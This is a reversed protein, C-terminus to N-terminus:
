LEGLIKMIRKGSVSWNLRNQYEGFSSLCLSRYEAKDSFVAAIYDCLCTMEEPLSFLHGNIDNRIITPIGGVKTSICPLGFSNAESYVVPTCDALTPLLLFHCTRFLQELESLGACTCKSIYGHNIITDPNITCPIRESGVTHLITRIGSANLRNTIEVAQDGGKREWEVGIFLLDLRDTNRRQVLDSVDSLTRNGPLNSGFPVVQIKEPSIGYTHIASDAAWQSSYIILSATELSIKELQHGHRITESSLDSFSSYFNILSAFTADTYIVKPLHTELLAVPISGPSFVLDTDPKLRNLIHHAYQRAVFPERDLDFHLSSLHRYYRLKLRILLNLSFHLNGIFDLDAEQSELMRAISCDLGSWHSIDLADHITTYAIKM